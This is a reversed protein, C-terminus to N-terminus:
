CSARRVNGSPSKPSVARTGNKSHDANRKPEPPAPVAALMTASKDTHPATWPWPGNASVSGILLSKANCSNKNNVATHQNIVRATNTSSRFRCSVIKRLSSRKRRIKVEGVNIQTDLFWCATCM